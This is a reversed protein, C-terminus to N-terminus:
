MWDFKITIITEFHSGLLAEGCTMVPFMEFIVNASQGNHDSKAWWSSVLQGDVELGMLGLGLNRLCFYTNMM